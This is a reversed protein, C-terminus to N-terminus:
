LNYIGIKEFFDKVRSVEGTGCRFGLIGLKNAEDIFGEGDDLYLIEDPNVGSKNILVELFEKCNGTKNLHENFSYIKEDFLSEFHYKNELYEVRSKFNGSFVFLKAVSKVQGLLEFLESDLVYGDWWEQRIIKADYGSPLNQDVWEWFDDDSVLGKRADNSLKSIKASILPRIVKEDYGYKELLNKFAIKKGETFLVGGLDVAIVKIM